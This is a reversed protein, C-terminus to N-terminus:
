MQIQSKSDLWIVKITLHIYTYMCLMSCLQCKRAPVSGYAHYLSRGSLTFLSLSQNTPEGANRTAECQLDGTTFHDTKQAAKVIRKLTRWCATICADYWVTIYSTLTGEMTGTYFIHTCGSWAIIQLELRHLECHNPQFDAGRFRHSHEESRFPHLATRLNPISCYTSCNSYRQTKNVLSPLISHSISLQILAADVNIRIRYQDRM